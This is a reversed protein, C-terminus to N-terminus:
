ALGIAKRLAMLQDVLDALQYRAQVGSPNALVFCRAGAVPEPQEGLVAKPRGFATRYATVGLIAVAAPRYPRLRGALEVAGDRLEKTSLETATATARAVLNTIGVGHALLRREDAPELVADTVGAEFLVRWFRNGPRAFHHGVAASWLGPNIGCFVVDLGPALVDEVTRGAAAARDAASPRGLRM